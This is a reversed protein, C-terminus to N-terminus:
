HNIFNCIKDSEYRYDNIKILYGFYEKLDDDEM